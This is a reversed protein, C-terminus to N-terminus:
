ASQGTQILSNEHDQEDAGGVRASIASAHPAVRRPAQARPSAGFGVGGARGAPRRASVASGDCIQARYEAADGTIGARGLPERPEGEGVAGAGRAPRTVRRERGIAGLGTALSGDHQREQPSHSSSSAQLSPLAKRRDVSRV